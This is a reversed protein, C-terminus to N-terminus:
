KAARVPWRADIRKQGDGGRVHAVFAAGKLEVTSGELFARDVTYAVDYISRDERLQGGELYRTTVLVPLKEQGRSDDPLGATRRLKVLPKSFWDRDIEPTGTNEVPSLGLRTPFALVQSEIAQGADLPALAIRVGAANATGKMLLPHTSAPAAITVPARSGNWSNYLGLGSIVVAALGVAEALTVWRIPVRRRRPEPTDSM